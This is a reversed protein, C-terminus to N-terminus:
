SDVHGQSPVTTKYINASILFSLSLCTRQNTWTGVAGVCPHRYSLGPVRTGSDVNEWEAQESPYGQAVQLSPVTEKLEGIEQHRLLKGFCTRSIPISLSPKPLKIMTRKYPSISVRRPWAAPPPQHSHTQLSAYVEKEGPRETKPDPVWESAM